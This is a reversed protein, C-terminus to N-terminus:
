QFSFRPKSVQTAQSCKFGLSHQVTHVDYVKQDLSCAKSLPSCFCFNLITSPLTGGDLSFDDFPVKWSTEKIESSCHAPGGGGVLAFSQAPNLRQTIETESARCSQISLLNKILHQAELPPLPRFCSHTQSLCKPSSSPSEDHPCDGHGRCLRWGGWSDKSAQFTTNSLSHAPDCNAHM